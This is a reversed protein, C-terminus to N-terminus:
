IKLKIQSNGWSLPPIDDSTPMSSCDRFVPLLCAKCAVVTVFTHTPNSEPKFTGIREKIKIENVVIKYFDSM